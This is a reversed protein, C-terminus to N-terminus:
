LPFIIGIDLWSSWGEDGVGERLKESLPNPWWLVANSGRNSLNWGKFDGGHGFLGKKELGAYLCANLFLYGVGTDLAREWKTQYTM